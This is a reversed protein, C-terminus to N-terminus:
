QSGVPVSARAASSFRRAALLASPALLAALFSVWIGAANDLGLLPVAPGAVVAAFVCLPLNALGANGRTVVSLALWPVFGCIAWGGFFITLFIAEFLM